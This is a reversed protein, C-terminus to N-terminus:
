SYPTSGTYLLILLIFSIEKCSIFSSFHFCKRLLYSAFPIPTISTEKLRHIIIVHLLICLIKDWFKTQASKIYWHIHIVTLKYAVFPHGNCHVQTHKHTDCRNTNRGETQKKHGETLTYVSKYGTEISLLGSM